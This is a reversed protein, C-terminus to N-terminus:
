AAPSASFERKAQPTLLLVFPLGVVTMLVGAIAFVLGLPPDDIRKGVTVVMGDTGVIVVYVTLVLLTVLVFGTVGLTWKRATPSHKILHAGAWFMLIVSLDVVLSGALIMVVITLAIDLCALVQLYRGVFRGVDNIRM